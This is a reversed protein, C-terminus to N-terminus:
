ARIREAYARVALSESEEGPEERVLLKAAEVAARTDGSALLQELRVRTGPGQQQRKSRSRKGAGRDYRSRLAPALINKAPRGFGLPWSGQEHCQWRM